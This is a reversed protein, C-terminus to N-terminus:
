ILLNLNILIYKKYKPIANIMISSNNLKETIYRNKIPVDNIM